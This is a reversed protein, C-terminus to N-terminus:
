PSTLDYRCAVAAGLLSSVSHRLPETQCAPPAEETM